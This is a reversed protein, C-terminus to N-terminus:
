ATPLALALLELKASLHSLRKYVDKGVVGVLHDLIEVDDLGQWTWITRRQHHSYTRDKGNGEFVCPSDGSKECSTRVPIPRLNCRRDSSFM